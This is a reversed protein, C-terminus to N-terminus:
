GMPLAWAGPIGLAWSQGAQAGVPWRHLQPRPSSDAEPAQFTQELHPRSEAFAREPAQHLHCRGSGGM